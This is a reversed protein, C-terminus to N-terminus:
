CLRGKVLWYGIVVVQAALFLPVLIKFKWHKTKHRFVHMGALAGISGGCFAIGLLTKESIRWQKKIARQKDMGYLLFAALNVALLYILLIKWLTM